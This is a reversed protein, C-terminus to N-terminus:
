RRRGVRSPARYAPAKPKATRPKVTKTHSPYHHYHDVDIEVPSPSAPANPDDCAAVTLAVLLALFFCALVAKLKM